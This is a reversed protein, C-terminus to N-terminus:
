LTVPNGTYFDYIKYNLVASYKAQIFSQMAQIYLNKQQLLDVLNISGLRLEENTIKYSEESAKLQAQAAQYQSQANQLNIYSQEVQQDLVTKTNLLSLKAQDIEIKSKNINTKNVRRSFIPIGMTVGLSQYFNNDIQSFYKSDQNDSYGTSLGGGLSITPKVSAKVKELETQAIQVGIEGNKIEPRTQQAANQAEALNPVANGVIVTDPAAVQMTYSSPLQLVQKLTVVNLRYSNQASVLNYEDTAVQAELQVFDKRSISGADFRQQGQKLQAQSTALLDQLYVISEKVLLINLYAETVNLTINNETEKVNLNASQLALGKSKIDNKLYGGNYLILSSSVGYGSSFNAQTQFGGVVPNANKSNVLNQSISGSVSPLKAAKSQLLDEESSRESLKLSNVQINNKKAYNICDELTWQIPLNQRATDQALISFPCLFILIIFTLFRTKM